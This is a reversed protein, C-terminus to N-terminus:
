RIPALDGQAEALDETSRAYAPPTRAHVAREFAAGLGLLTKDSWAPGIFSFGVPLGRVYGMPLTLHPYGSIAAIRSVGGGSHDGAVVDVRWAPPMTPAILADLRNDAMVKDIGDPGAARKAAALAQLYAPDDLGKSAEAREFTELGFLAMERPSSKHFTILDALTRSTVQSPTSALYANMDAKLETVLVLFEQEGINAPLRFDPLDIIEAGQAKLVGLATEFIADTAPARGTAYRLIGLRKGKLTAQNLGDAFDVVHRDAEITAPDAPDSGAMHTLLRAVDAVTRGMPGAGDQSHSIPVIHTRSVLGVTPKLGVLGNASSPCVISGDTETGIGIAGFSAAIAAGTGSSSGCATRDLANPNKVLGGIASWGSNSRSSRINAWESLNTKGLIVAGAARLKAILPADRYTFNRALALSGATTPM